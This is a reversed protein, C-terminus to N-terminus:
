TVEEDRGNGIGAFTMAPPRPAALFPLHVPEDHVEIKGQWQPCVAELAAVLVDADRFETKFEAYASM